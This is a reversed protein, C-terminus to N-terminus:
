STLVLSWCYNAIGKWCRLLLARLHTVLRCGKDRERKVHRSGICAVLGKQQQKRQRADSPGGGQGGWGVRLGRAGASWVKGCGAKM